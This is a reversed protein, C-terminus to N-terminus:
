CRNSWKQTFAHLSLEAHVVIWVWMNDTFLTWPESIQAPNTIYLLALSLNKAFDLHAEKRHWENFVNINMWKTLAQIWLSKCDNM